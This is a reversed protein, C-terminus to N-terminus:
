VNQNHFIICLFTYSHMCVSVCMIYIHIYICVYLVCVDKKEQPPIYEKKFNKNIKINQNLM